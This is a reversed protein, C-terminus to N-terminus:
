ADLSTQPVILTTGSSVDGPMGHFGHHRGPGGGFFGRFGFSFTPMEELLQDAQAQTIAGGALAAAVAEEYANQLAATIANQDVYSQVAERAAMLDAAEQTIIGAEVLEALRAARGEAQAAQLEEVSIGLAEALLESSAGLHPGRRGFPGSSERLQEAQEATISGEALAQDIAALRAEEQAAELEAVTIGLAEALLEEDQGRFSKVEVHFGRSWPLAGSEAEAEPTVTEPDEEQAFVAIGGIAVALALMAGLGMYIVRKLISMMM